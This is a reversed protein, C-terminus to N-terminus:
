PARGERMTEQDAELWARVDTKLDEDDSFRMLGNGPLFPGYKPRGGVLWVIARM